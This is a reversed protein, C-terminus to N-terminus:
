LVAVVLAAVAAVWAAATARWASSKLRLGDRGIGAVGSPDDLKTLALVGDATYEFEAEKEGGCVDTFAVKVTHKGNKLDDAAAFALPSRCHVGDETNSLPEGDHTCLATGVGRFEWSLVIEQGPEVDDRPGHSTSKIASLYTPSRQVGVLADQLVMQSKVEYKGTVESGAEDHQQIQTLGNLHVLSPRETLLSVVANVRYYGEDLSEAKLGGGGVSITAKTGDANSSGAPPQEDEPHEPDPTIVAYKIFFNKGTDRSAVADFAETAPSGDMNRVKNGWVKVLPQLLLPKDEDVPDSSGNSTLNVPPPSIDTVNVVLGKDRSCMDFAFTANAQKSQRLFCVVTEAEEDKTPVNAGSSLKGSNAVLTARVRVCHEGDVLNAPVGVQPAKQNADSSSFTTQGDANALPGWPGDDLSYQARYIPPQVVTLPGDSSPPPPAPTTAAAAAPAAVRRFFGRRAPQTAPKAEEAPALLQRRRRTSEPKAAADAAKAPAEEAEEEEVAKEVAEPAEAEEVAKEVAEPDLSFRKNTAPKNAASTGAAAAAVDAAQEAEATAIADADAEAVTEETVEPEEEEVEPKRIPAAGEPLEAQREAEEVSMPAASSSSSGDGEQGDDGETETGGCTDRPASGPKVLLPHRLRFYLTPNIHGYQDLAIKFMAGTKPGDVNGGAM